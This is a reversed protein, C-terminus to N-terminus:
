DGARGRGSLDLPARPEGRACGPVARATRRLHGVAQARLVRRRRRDSRLRNFVRSPDSLLRSISANRRTHDFSLLTPWRRHLGKRRRLSSGAGIGCLTEGGVCPLTADRSRLSRLAWRRRMRSALRRRRGCPLCRPRRGPGRRLPLRPLYVRAQSPASRATGKRTSVAEQLPPRPFVVSDRRSLVTPQAGREPASRVPAPVETGIAREQVPGYSAPETSQVQEVSPWTRLVHIAAQVGGPSAGTTHSGAASTTLGAVRKLAAVAPPQRTVDGTGHARSTSDCVALSCM